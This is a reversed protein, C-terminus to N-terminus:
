QAAAQFKGVVQEVHKVQALPTDRGTGPDGGLAGSVQGTEGGLIPQPPPVGGAEGPSDGLRKDREMTAAAAAAAAAAM